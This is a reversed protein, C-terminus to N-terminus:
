NWLSLFVCLKSVVKCYVRGVLLWIQHLTSHGWLDQHNELKLRWHVML